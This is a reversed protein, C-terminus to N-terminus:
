RSPNLGPPSCRSPEEDIIRRSCATSCCSCSPSARCGVGPINQSVIVHTSLRSTSIGRLHDDYKALQDISEMVNCFPDVPWLRTTHVVRVYQAQAPHLPFRTHQEHLGSDHHRCQSWSPVPILAVTESASSLPPM